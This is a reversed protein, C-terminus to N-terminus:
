KQLQENNRVLRKGCFPCRKVDHLCYYLGEDDLMTWGYTKTWSLRWAIGDMQDCCIKLKSKAM